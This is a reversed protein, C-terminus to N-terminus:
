HYDDYNVAEADAGVFRFTVRWNGSVEVAWVGKRSGTLEHLRLGPVAMDQPSTAGHLRALILRLKSAHKAQIGSKTGTLFFRELGKRAFRKFM